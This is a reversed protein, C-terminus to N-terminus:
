SNCNPFPHKWFCWIPWSPWAFLRSGALFPPVQHFIIQIVWNKKPTVLVQFKITSTGKSDMQFLFLDLTKATLMVPLYKLFPCVNSVNLVSNFSIISSTGSINPTRSLIPFLGTLWSDHLLMCLNTGNFQQYTNAQFNNSHENGHFICGMALVMLLCYNKKTDLLNCKQLGWASSGLSSSNMRKLQTTWGHLLMLPFKLFEKGTTCVTEHACCLRNDRGFLPPPPRSYFLRNPSDHNQQARPAVHHVVFRIPIRM